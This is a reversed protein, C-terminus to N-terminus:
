IGVMRRLATGTLGIAAQASKTLPPELAHRYDRAAQGVQKLTHARALADAIQVAVKLAERRTGSDQCTMGRRRHSSDPM